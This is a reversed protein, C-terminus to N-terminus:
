LNLKKIIKNYKAIYRLNELQNPLDSLIKAAVKTWGEIEVQYKSSTLLELADYASPMKLYNFGLIYEESLNVKDYSYQMRELVEDVDLSKESLFDPFLYILDKGEAFVLESDDDRDIEALMLVGLHFKSVEESLDYFFVLFNKKADESDFWPYFEIKSYQFGELEESLERKAANLIIESFNKAGDVDGENIHGGLGLALKGALRQETSDDSRVGMIVNQTKRDITIIYPIVQVYDLDSAAVPYEPDDGAERRSLFKYEYELNTDGLLVAFVNPDDKKLRMGLSVLKENNEFISQKSICLVKEDYKNTLEM